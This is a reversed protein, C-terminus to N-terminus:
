HPAEMGEERAQVDGERHGHPWEDDRGQVRGSAKGAGSSKAENASLREDDPQLDPITEASPEGRNGITSGPEVEPPRPKEPQKRDRTM